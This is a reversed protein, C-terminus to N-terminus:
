RGSGRAVDEEEEEEEEQSGVSEDDTTGYRENEEMFPDMARDIARYIEPVSYGNRLLLIRSHPMRARPANDDASIVLLIHEVKDFLEFILMDSWSTAIVIAPQTTLRDRLIFADAIHSSSPEHFPFGQLWTRAIKFDIAEGSSYVITDFLAKSTPQLSVFSFSLQMNDM